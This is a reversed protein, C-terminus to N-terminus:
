VNPQYPQTPDELSCSDNKMVFTPLNYYLPRAQIKSSYRFQLKKKRKDMLYLIPNETSPNDKRM